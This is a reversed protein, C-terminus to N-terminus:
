MSPLVGLAFRIDEVEWILDWLRLACEKSDDSIRRNVM